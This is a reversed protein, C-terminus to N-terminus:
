LHNTLINMITNAIFEIDSELLELHLPLSLIQNSLSEAKPVDQSMHKYPAYFSNSKYHVGPFIGFSNLELIFENRDISPPLIM